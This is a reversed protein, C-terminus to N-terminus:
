RLRHCVLTEELKRRLTSREELYADLLAIVCDQDQELHPILLGNLAEIIQIALKDHQALQCFQQLLTANAHHLERRLEEVTDFLDPNTLTPGINIFTM